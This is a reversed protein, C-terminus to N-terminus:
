VRVAILSSWSKMMSQFYTPAEWPWPLDSSVSWEPHMEFHERAWQFYSEDDTRFHFRGGSPMRNAVQDLFATQIMRNKHHRKKPWPDPFLMFVADMRYEPPWAELFESAEAKLFRLHALGRRDRKANAKRVRASLIDLGLCITNPHAVAYDTLWHGHGCGFEVLVSGSRASIAEVVAARISEIRKRRNELVWDPIMATNCLRFEEREASRISDSM